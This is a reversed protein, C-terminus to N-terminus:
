ASILLSLFKFFARETKWSSNYFFERSLYLEEFIDDVIGLDNEEKTWLGARRRATEHVAVASVNNRIERHIEAACTPPPLSQHDLRLM